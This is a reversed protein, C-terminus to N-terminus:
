RVPGKCVAVGSGCRATLPSIRGMVSEAKHAPTQQQKRDAATRRRLPLNQNTRRHCPKKTEKKRPGGISWVLRRCDDYSMQDRIQSDTAPLYEAEKKEEEERRPRRRTRRRRRRGRTRRTEDKSNELAEREGQANMTVNLDAVVIAHTSGDDKDGAEEEDDEGDEEDQEQVDEEEEKTVSM